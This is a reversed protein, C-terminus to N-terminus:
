VDFRQRHHIGKPGTSRKTDRALSRPRPWERYGVHLVLINPTLGRCIKMFASHRGPLHLSCTRVSVRSVDEASQMEASSFQLAFGSRLLALDEHKRWAGIKVLLDCAGQASRKMLLEALLQLGPTRNSKYKLRRTSSADWEAYDREAELQDTPVNLHSVAKEFQEPTAKVGFQTGLILLSQLCIVAGSIVEIGEKSAEEDDFLAELIREGELTCCLDVFRGRAANCALNDSCKSDAGQRPALDHGEELKRSILSGMLRVSKKEFDEKAADAKESESGSDPLLETPFWHGELKKRIAQSRAGASCVIRKRGCLIGGDQQLRSFRQVDFNGHLEPRRTAVQFANTQKQCLIIIFISIWSMLALFLRVNQYGHM